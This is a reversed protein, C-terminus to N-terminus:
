IESILGSPKGDSRKGDKGFGNNKLHTPPKTIDKEIYGEILEQKKIIWCGDWLPDHIVDKFYAHITHWVTYMRADHGCFYHSVKPMWAKCDAAIYEFSHGGDIFVMWVSNDAFRKSAEVSDMPLFEVFDLLGAKALNVKISKEAGASMDIVHDIGIIKLGKNAAKAYLGLQVLSRGAYCGVEVITANAPALDVMKEYFGYFDHVDGFGEIAHFNFGYDHPPKDQWLEQPM